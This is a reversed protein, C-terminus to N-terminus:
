AGSVAETSAINVLETKQASMKDLRNDILRKGAILFGLMIFGGPPLAMLLFGKYHPILELELFSFTDGLLLSANAFLIGQALIERAAGLAVLVMTFGLGMMFGDLISEKLPQRSAFSEARGLIACNTEDVFVKVSGFEMVTDSTLPQEDLRLGYQYGSCGGDAAEIRLGSEPKESSAIFRGVAEIASETLTIM